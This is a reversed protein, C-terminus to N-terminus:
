QVDDVMTRMVAVLEVALTVFLVVAAVGRAAESMLPVAVCFVGLGVFIGVAFNRNEASDLGKRGVHVGIQADEPLAFIAMLSVGLVAVFLVGILSAVVM